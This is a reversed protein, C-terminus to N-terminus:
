GKNPSKIGQKLEVVIKFVEGKIKLHYYSAKVIVFFLNLPAIILAVFFSVIALLLLDSVLGANFILDVLFYVLTLSIALDILFLTYIQIIKYKFPKNLDRSIKIASGLDFPAEFLIFPAASNKSAEFIYAMAGSLFAFIYLILIGNIIMPFRDLELMIGDFNNVNNAIFDALAPLNITLYVSLGIGGLVLIGFFILVGNLFGRFMMKSGLVLSPLFSKFGLYLDEPFIQKEEEMKKAILYFSFQIPLFVLIVFVLTLGGLAGVFFSALLMVAYVFSYVLFINRHKLVVKFAHSLINQIKM